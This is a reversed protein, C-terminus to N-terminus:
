WTHGYGTVDGSSDLTEYVDSWSPNSNSQGSNWTPDIFVPYVVSSGALVSAVPTLSMTGASATVAMVAQADGAIPGTAAAPVTPTAAQGADGAPAAAATQGASDWMQPAAATFVADGSADVASLNGLSDASVTLGNGSVPFTLTALDPNAAAAADTVEVVDSVGTPTASVLL